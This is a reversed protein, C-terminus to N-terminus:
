LGANAYVTVAGALVEPAGALTALQAPISDALLALAAAASAQDEFACLWAGAGAGSDLWYCAVFGPQHRLLPVCEDTMQRKLEASSAPDFAYGRLVAYM